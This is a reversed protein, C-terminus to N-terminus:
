FFRLVYLLPSLYPQPIKLINEPSIRTGYTYQSGYKGAVSEVLGVVGVSKGNFQWVRQRGRLQQNIVFLVM